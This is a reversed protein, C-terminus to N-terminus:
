KRISIANATYSGLFAGVADAVADGVAANRGPVFSQHFEDTIGYIVALLFSLAIVRRNLGSKKFSLYSLVGLVAYVVAHVVKDFGFPLSPLEISKQSSIYFIATMYSVTIIWYVVATM